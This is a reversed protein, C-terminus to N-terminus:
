RFTGLQRLDGGQQATASGGEADDVYFPRLISRLDARSMAPAKIAINGITLTRPIRRFGFHSRILDRITYIDM